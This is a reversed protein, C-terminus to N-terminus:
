ERLPREGALMYFHPNPIDELWKRTISAARKRAYNLSCPATLQWGECTEACWVTRGAAIARVLARHSSLTVKISM